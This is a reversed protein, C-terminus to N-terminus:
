TTLFILSCLHSYAFIAFGVVLGFAWTMPLLSFGRAVNTEDTLEAIASKVVGINGKLAGQLCRSAILFLDCTLPVDGVWWLVQALLTIMGSFSLGFLVPSALHSSPLSPVRSARCFCPSAALM